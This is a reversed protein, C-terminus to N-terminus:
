LSCTSESIGAGVKVAMFGANVEEIEVERGNVYATWGKDYPVSFFVLNERDRTVRATFGYNDTKFSDASTKKLQGCDYAM